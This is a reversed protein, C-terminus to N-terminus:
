SQGVVDSSCSCRTSNQFNAEVYRPSFYAIRCWESDSTVQRQKAKLHEVTLKKSNLATKVDKAQRSHPRYILGLGGKDDGGCKKM